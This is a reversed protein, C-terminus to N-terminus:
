AAACGLSRRVLGGCVPLPDVARGAVVTATQGCLDGGYLPPVRFIGAGRVWPWVFRGPAVALGASGSGLGALLAVSGLTYMVLGVWPAKALGLLVCAGVAVRNVVGCASWHTCWGLSPLPLFLCVGRCFFFLTPPVLFAGTLCCRLRSGWIFVPPGILWFRRCGVSLLPGGSSLVGRVRRCVVRQPPSPCPSVYLCCPFMCVYFCVAQVLASPHVSVVLGLVPVALSPCWLAVVRCSVVGEGRLGFFFSFPVPPFFGWGHCCGCVGVGCAAGLLHRSVSAACELPGAGWYGLWFFVLSCVFGLGVCVRGVGSSITPHLRPVRVFVFVGWCGLWSLRPM